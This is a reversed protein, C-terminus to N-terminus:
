CSFRANQQESARMCLGFLSSDQRQSKLVQNQSLSSKGRCLLTHPLGVLLFSCSLSLYLAESPTRTVPDMWGQSKTVPFQENKSLDVQTLNRDRAVLFGLKYFVGSFLYLCHKLFYSSHLSIHIKFKHNTRQNCPILYFDWVMWKVINIGLM